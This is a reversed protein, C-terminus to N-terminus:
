EVEEEKEEPVGLFQDGTERGESRSGGGGGGGRGKTRITGGGGGGGRYLLLLAAHGGGEEKKGRGSLGLDLQHFHFHVPRM